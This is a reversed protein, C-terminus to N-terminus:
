EVVLKIIRNETKVNLFYIGKALSGREIIFQSTNTRSHRIFRGYVDMIELEVGEQETNELKLVTYERFPNPFVAIPSQTDTNNTTGTPPGCSWTANWGSNQITNDSKWRITLAPGTSNVIGPSNTGTYGGILPSSTSPGNYLWLSDYNLETNFSYFALSVSAAGYPSITYFYNEKDYHNRNPGGLDYITDSCPIIGCNSFKDRIKNWYDPYGDDQGLAWIGIGGIGYQNVIDFRKGM